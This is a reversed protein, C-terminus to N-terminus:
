RNRPRSQEQFNPPNPNSQTPHARRFRLHSGLQELKGATFTKSTIQRDGSEFDVSISISTWSIRFSNPGIRELHDGLTRLLQSLRRYAETGSSSSIRRQRQAQKDLRSIDAPTFRVSRNITSQRADKESIDNPSLGNRLIWEGTESLVDSQVLYSAGDTELEFASLRAAELSQGIVRLSTGHAM